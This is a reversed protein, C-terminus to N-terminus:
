AIARRPLRVVPALEPVIHGHMEGNSLSLARDAGFLGTSEGVTTLVGIGDRALSRLLKLIGDRDLLDVGKTPEDILLLAPQTALGQAIAVRVIEASDLEHPALEACHQAGARELAARAHTSAVSPTEGRALSGALVEALVTRGDAAHLPPHCYAIGNALASGAETALDHGAFRVVGSDPAEIGAALRLLTSRGSRRLGWVAVLEGADLELSVARLADLKHAGHRYRKSVHQLELLSM